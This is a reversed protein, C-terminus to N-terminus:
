DVKGFVPLSDAAFVSLPFLLLVLLLKASCRCISNDVITMFAGRFLGPFESNESPRCGPLRDGWEPSKANQYGDGILEHKSM